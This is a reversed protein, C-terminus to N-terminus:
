PTRHLLGYGTRMMVAGPGGVLLDVGPFQFRQEVPNPDDVLALEPTSFAPTSADFESYFVEDGVKWALALPGDSTSHFWSPIDRGTSVITTSEDVPIRETGDLTALERAEAWVEGDFSRIWNRQVNEGQRWLAFSRGGGGDVLAANQAPSRDDIDLEIPEEWVGTTVNLREAIFDGDFGVALMLEDGLLLGAQAGADRTQACYNGSWTSDESSLFVCASDSVLIAQQGPGRLFHAWNFGDVSAPATWSATGLDSTVVNLMNTPSLRWAVHARRGADIGAM